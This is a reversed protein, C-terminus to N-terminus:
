SHEYCLDVEYDIPVWPFGEHLFNMTNAMPVLLFCYSYTHAYFLDVKFDLPVWPFGEHLYTM